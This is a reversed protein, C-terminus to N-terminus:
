KAAFGISWKDKTACGISPLWMSMLDGKVREWCGIELGQGAQDLHQQTLSRLQRWDEGETWWSLFKQVSPIQAFHLVIFCLSTLREHLCLKVLHMYLSTIIFWKVSKVSKVNSMYMIGLIVVCVCVCVRHCFSSRTISSRVGGTWSGCGATAGRRLGFVEARFGHHMADDCPPCPEKNKVGRFGQLFASSGSFPGSEKLLGGEIIYKPYNTM